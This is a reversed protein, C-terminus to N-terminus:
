DLFVANTDVPPQGLSADLGPGQRLCPWCCLGISFLSFFILPTGNERFIKGTMQQEAAEQTLIGEYKIARLSHQYYCNDGTLVVGAGRNNDCSLTFVSFTFFSPEVATPFRRAKTPWTEVLWMQSLERVGLNAPM